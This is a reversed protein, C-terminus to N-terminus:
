TQFFIPLNGTPSRYICMIYMMEHRLSVRAAVCEFHKDVSAETIESINSGDFRSKVMILVGGGRCSKRCFTIVNFMPITCSLLREETLWTETACFIDVNKTKIFAEVPDLKNGLSQVNQHAFTILNPLGEM